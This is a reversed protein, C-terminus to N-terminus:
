SVAKKIASIGFLIILAGVIATKPNDQVWQIFDKQAVEPLHPNQPVPQGKVKDHQEFFKDWWSQPQTNNKIQANGWQLADAVKRLAANYKVHYNPDTFYRNARLRDIFETATTADIPRGKGGTNLSLVRRYDALFAPFDKYHAYNGGEPSKIGPTAGQQNVYKIGAYNNDTNGLNSTMWDSEHMIQAMAYASVATPIGAAQMQAYLWRLQEYLASITKARANENKAM